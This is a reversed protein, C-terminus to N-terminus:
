QPPRKLSFSTRNVLALAFLRYKGLTPNVNGRLCKLFHPLPLSHTNLLVINSFLRPYFLSLVAA